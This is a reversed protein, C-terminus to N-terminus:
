AVVTDAPISDVVDVTDVMVVSDEEANNPQPLHGCSVVSMGVLAILIFVLKKM